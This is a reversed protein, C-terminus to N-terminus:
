EGGDGNGNEEEEDEEEEDSHQNEGAQQGQALRNQHYADMAAQGTRMFDETMESVPAFALRGSLKGYREM